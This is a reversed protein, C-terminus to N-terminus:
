KAAWHDFQSPLSGRYAESVATATESLDRKMESIKSAVHVKYKSISDVAKLLKHAHMQIEEESQKITEQLKLESAKLVEAAERERIDLDHDAQRVDELMKEAEAFCRSTYDDTEKKIMNRQAEIEDIRSQVAALQNRKGELRVANESSKQQHSILEELKEMSSKKIDDAFSNLAPKLTLKHDIGMIEAPTTGKSNLQYEIGNGIKLRKLAQNCDMALAQLDKFKHDLNTDLEWCKDEWANRALEAEGIDREVAQLERKMREVDRANFTQLEVRRKLEENEECIRANEEMKVELQKEKEVLVKEGQQIRSGLEEIIMHFKNVDDELLGNEKELVEKQSPASRLRELEAELNSTTEKAAKLKVEALAKEQQIKERIKRDLEEIADDDGRIYHMYSSLTYQHLVNSHVLTNTSSSLHHHFKAIQVMWHILALFTPWQHPAAPTKLISKNIKFPYGLRKLLLPLDDELKSSPMPMEILSLLFKLTEHIDKASPFTSKFSIPFNHSSLFSNISSVASQQFSRDKYLDLTPRGGIGVSSPRSSADSDRPRHQFDMPTPSEKPQRRGTPRM